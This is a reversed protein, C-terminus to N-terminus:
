EREPRATVNKVEDLFGNLAAEYIAKRKATAEDPAVQWCGYSPGRKYDITVYYRQM